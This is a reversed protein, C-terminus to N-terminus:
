QEVEKLLWQEIGLECMDLCQSASVSCYDCVSGDEACDYIFQVMEAITMSKIKEFNNM